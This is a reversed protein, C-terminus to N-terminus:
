HNKKPDFLHDFLEKKYGTVRAAIGIDAKYYDTIIGGLHLDKLTSPFLKLIEETQFGIAVIFLDDCHMQQDNAIIRHYVLSTIICPGLNESADFTHHIFKGEYGRIEPIFGTGYTHDTPDIAVGSKCMVIFDVCQESM